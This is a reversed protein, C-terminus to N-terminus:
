KKEHLNKRTYPQRLNVRCVTCRWETTNTSMHVYSLPMQIMLRETCWVRLQQQKHKPGIQFRQEACCYILILTATLVARSGSSLEAASIKTKEGNESMLIVAYLQLQNSRLCAVRYCSVM